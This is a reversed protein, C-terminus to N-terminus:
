GISLSNVANTVAARHAAAYIATTTPSSHGLLDQVARLDLTAQYAHTGCWHRLQHATANSGCAALHANIRRSVQAPTFTRTWLSGRRPPNLRRLAAVVELHLPVIRWKMGKGLIRAGPNAWDINEAVLGAIEACRFGALAALLLWARMEPNAAEVCRNLETTPIPRPLDVAVRPRVLRDTPDSRFDLPQYICAHRYFAHWHSIWTARTRPSIRRDDLVQELHEPEVDALAVGAPLSQMLARIARKRIEITAPALNRRTMTLIWHAVVEEPLVRDSVASPAPRM